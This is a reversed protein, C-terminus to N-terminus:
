AKKELKQIESVKEENDMKGLERCLLVEGNKKLISAMKLKSVTVHSFALKEYTPYIM